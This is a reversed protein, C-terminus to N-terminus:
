PKKETKVNRENGDPGAKRLEGRKASTKTKIETQRVLVAYDAPEIKSGIAEAYVQTYEAGIYLIAATYYIWVLIILISGAAGYVSSKATYQLYLNIGYQGLM